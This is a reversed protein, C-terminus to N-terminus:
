QEAGWVQTYEFAHYSGSIYGSKLGFILFAISAPFPLCTLAVAISCEANSAISNIDRTAKLPLDRIALYWFSNTNAMLAVIGSTDIWRMKEKAGWGIIRVVHNGFLSRCKSFPIPLRFKCLLLHFFDPLKIRDRFNRSMGSSTNDSRNDETGGLIYCSSETYGSRLNTTNCPTFSPHMSM